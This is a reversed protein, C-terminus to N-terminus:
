PFTPELETASQESYNVLHTSGDVTAKTTHVSYGLFIILIPM